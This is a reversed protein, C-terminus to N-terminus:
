SSRASSTGLGCRLRQEDTPLQLAKLVPRTVASVHRLEGGGTGGLSTKANLDLQKRHVYLIVEFSYSIGSPFLLQSLLVPLNQLYCFAPSPPARDSEMGLLALEGKVQVRAVLMSQPPAKQRSNRNCPKQPQSQHHSFTSIETSVFQLM